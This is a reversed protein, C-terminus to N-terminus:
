LQVLSANTWEMRFAQRLADLVVPEEIMSFMFGRKGLGKLSAGFHYFDTDDVVVFRDHFAQSERLSVGGYQANFAKAAAVFKVAPQKTLISVTVGHRKTTLLDLVEVGVYGDVVLISARASSLIADLHRFADFVQGGLFVGERSVRIPGPIGQVPTRLVTEPDAKIDRKLGLLFSRYEAADGLFSPPGSPGSRPMVRFGRIARQKTFREAVAESVKERLMSATAEKWRHLREAAFSGGENVIQELKAIREDIAAIVDQVGQTM